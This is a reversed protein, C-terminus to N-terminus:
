DDGPIKITEIPIWNCGGCIGPANILFNIVDGCNPCKNYYVPQSGAGMKLLNLGFM